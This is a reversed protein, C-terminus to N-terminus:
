DINENAVWNSQFTAKIAAESLIKQNKLVYGLSTIEFMDNSNLQVSVKYHDKTSLNEEFLLFEKQGNGIKILDEYHHRKSVFHTLGSQANNKAQRHLRSNHTIRTEISTTHYVTVAAATVLFSVGLVALLTYGKRM